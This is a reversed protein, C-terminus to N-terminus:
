KLLEEKTLYDRIKLFHNMSLGSEDYLGSSSFENLIQILMIDHNWQSDAVDVKLHDLKVILSDVMHILASEPTSPKKEQGYYEYIIDILPEPFYLSEAREVGARVGPKDQWMGIRYYFGAAACLEVDLGAAKAAKISITSVFNAHNYESFSHEKLEQVAPFDDSIIAILRDKIEEDTRPRFVKSCIFCFVAVIAGAIVSRILIQMSFEKVSIYYFINPIVINLCLTIIYTYVLLQKQRILKAIISGAIVLVIDSILEYYDGSVTMAILVCFFTGCIFGLYENGALCILIPIFIVPRSYVPLFACLLAIICCVMFSLAFRVFDTRTNGSIQRNAREYQLEFLLLMYFIIDVYAICIWEDPYLDGVLCLIFSLSLICLLVVTLSVTRRM